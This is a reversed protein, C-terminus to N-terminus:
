RLHVTIQLLRPEGGSTIGAIYSAINAVISAADQRLEVDSLSAMIGEVINRITIFDATINAVGDRLVAVVASTLSTVLDAIVNTDIGSKAMGIVVKATNIIMDAISSDITGYDLAIAAIAMIEYAAVELPSIEEVAVVAPNFVVEVRNGYQLVVFTVDNGFLSDDNAVYFSVPMGVVAELAELMRDNGLLNEDAATM